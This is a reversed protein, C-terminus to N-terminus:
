GDESRSLERWEAAFPLAVAYKREVEGEEEIWDDPTWQAVRMVGLDYVKWDGAADVLANGTSQIVDGLFAFDEGLEAEDVLDLQPAGEPLNWRCLAGLLLLAGIVPWLLSRKKERTHTGLEM